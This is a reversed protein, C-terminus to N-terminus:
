FFAAMSRLFGVQIFVTGENSFDSHFKGGRLGTHPYKPFVRAYLVGHHDHRWEFMYGFYTSFDPFAYAEQEQPIRQISQGEEINTIKEEIVGLYIHNRAPATRSGYWSIKLGAKASNYNYNSEGSGYEQSDLLDSATYNRGGTTYEAFLKLNKLGGYVRGGAHYNLQTADFIPSIGPSAGVFGYGGLYNTEYGFQMDVNFDFLIKTSGKTTEIYDYDYTEYESAFYMPHITLGFGLDMNFFFNSGEYLSNPNTFGYKSYVFGGLLYMLTGTAAASSYALQQNQNNQSQKRAQYRQMKEWKETEPSKGSTYRSSTSSEKYDDDNTESENGTESTGESYSDSESGSSDGSSSSSSSSNSDEEEEDDDDGSGFSNGSTLVLTRRPEMERVFEIKSKLGELDKKIFTIDRSETIESSSLQSRLALIKEEVELRQNAVSIAQEFAAISNAQDSDFNDNGEKTLKLEYERGTSEHARQRDRLSSSESYLADIRDEIEKRKAEYAEVAKSHRCECENYYDDLDDHCWSRLDDPAAATECNYKPYELTQSIASFSFTIFLLSTYFFKM